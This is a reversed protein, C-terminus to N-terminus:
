LFNGIYNIYGKKGSNKRWFRLSELLHKFCATYLSELSPIKNAGHLVKPNNIYGDDFGGEERIELANLIEDIIAQKRESSVEPEELAKKGTRLKFYRALKQYALEVDDDTM